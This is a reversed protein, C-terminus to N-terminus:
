INEEISEIFRNLDRFIFPSVGIETDKALSAVMEKPVVCKEETSLKEQLIKSNLLLELGEAVETSDHGNQVTSMLGLIGVQAQLFKVYKFAAQLMEATNMKNGGPILRGLEQTKESIRKRRERAAVSQALLGRGGIAAKKEGNCMAAPLPPPVAFERAAPRRFPVNVQYLDRCSRPRKPCRCFSDLSDVVLPYQENPLSIISPDTAPEFFNLLNDAPFDFLSDFPLDIPDHLGILADALESQPDYLQGPSDMPEWIPCFSLAM